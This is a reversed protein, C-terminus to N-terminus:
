VALLVKEVNALQQFQMSEFVLHLVTNDIVVEVEHFTTPLRLNWEAARYSFEVYKWYNEGSFKRKRSSTEDQELDSTHDQHVEICRNFILKLIYEHTQTVIRYNSSGPIYGYKLIQLQKLPYSQLLDEM